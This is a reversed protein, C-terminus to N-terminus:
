EPLRRCVSYTQATTFGLRHALQYSEPNEAEWHIELGQAQCDRLMKASVSLAFGRRRFKPTCYVAIEAMGEHRAILIAACVVQGEVVCCYGKSQEAFMEFDPYGATLDSQMNELRTFLSQDIRLIECNRPPTLANLRHPRESIPEFHWFTKSTFRPGWLSKILKLWTENPPVVSLMPPVERAIKAALAHTADGLPFAMGFLLVGVRPDQENDVWVYGRGALGARVRAQMHTYSNGLGTDGLGEDPVRFLGEIM